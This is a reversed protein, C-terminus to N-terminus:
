NRVKAQAQAGWIKTTAALGQAAKCLGSSQQWQLMWMVVQHAMQNGRHSHKNNGGEWRTNANKLSNLAHNSPERDETTGEIWMGGKTLLRSTGDPQECHLHENGGKGNGGNGGPTWLM